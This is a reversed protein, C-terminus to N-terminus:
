AFSRDVADSHPAITLSSHKQHGNEEKSIVRMFWAHDFNPDFSAPEAYGFAGLKHAM